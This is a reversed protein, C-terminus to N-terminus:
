STDAEFRPESISEGSQPKLHDEKTGESLYWSLVKFQAVVAEKLMRKMM